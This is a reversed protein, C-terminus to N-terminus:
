RGGQQSSSASGAQSAGLLSEIESEFRERLREYRKGTAPGSFGTHVASVKGQGDMFVTTPYARVRDLIPLAASAKAKNTTGCILAPYEAGHHALYDRVATRQAEPDDGYEFALGLISLGEYRADLEVLYESLDNCNPCWSGFVVLLRADGAFAPDDLRRPTGELDPFSLSSLADEGGTWTTLAFDDPLSAAADKTATWTTHYSDRSWFDGSLTEGELTASFLFAHAGDFCSLDLRTGDFRGALFRYDGLTTLFTGRATGDARAEFVGVAPDEDDAFRVSWRGTLADAAEPGLTIDTAPEPGATAAFALIREHGAGRDRDWRGELGRGGDTVKAVLRSRYPPIEVTISDDGQEILGAPRREEGNLLTLRLAGSPEPTLDLGFTLPGGPSALAARWPGSALTPADTAASPDESGGCAPLTALLLGPLLGALLPREPRQSPTPM